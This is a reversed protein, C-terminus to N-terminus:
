QDDNIFSNIKQIVNNTEIDLEQGNKRNKIQIKNDLIYNSGIIIQFPIGILDSDSFKVGVREDRDDYLVDFNESLLKSYLEDSFKFCNSQTIRAVSWSM